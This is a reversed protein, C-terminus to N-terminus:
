REKVLPLKEANWKVIDGEIGLLHAFGLNRMIDMAEASRRGTRCYVLYTKGRDLRGIDNKFSDANIDINIAGEIHGSKFEDPTRVDLIVFQPNGKNKQILQFADSPKLKPNPSPTGAGNTSTCWTTLIAALAVCVLSLATKMPDGRKLTLKSLIHGSLGSACVGFFLQAVRKGTKSSSPTGM